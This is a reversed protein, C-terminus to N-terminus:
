PRRSFGFLLSVRLGTEHTEILRFKPPGGFSERTVRSPVVALNVPVNLDGARFTRGAAIVLAAGVPTLNPGVGFEVGNMTRMGVLWSLSPLFVGQEVGGVLLVWETVLTPGTDTTTFQKEFQWGFQSVVSAVDIDDDEALKRVLSNSLFTVGFRPGSLGPPKTAPPPTTQSSAPAAVAGVITAALAIARLFGSRNKSM